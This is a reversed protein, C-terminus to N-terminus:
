NILNLFKNKIAETIVDVEKIKMNYIIVSYSTVGVIIAIFLSMSQSLTNSLYNFSLKAFGGMVLSAFLIHAYNKLILCLRFAGIKVRLKVFLLLCVVGGSISSALALGGIGIYKSLIINLVINILIGIIGNIMPTKSDGLSYFVRLLIERLGFAIMGLSYYLLSISTMNIATTDFAGRGFLFVVIQRSFLMAGISSPIVLLGIINISEIVLKKLDKKNGQVAFKSITPYLVAIISTIFLGQILGDLKQAYNLASIGGVAINSAITRDVLKNIQNLSSGLIIPASIQMTQLITPERLNLILSYRFGKRKVFIILLLVQCLIALLTGIPLIYVNTMISLVIALITITNLPFGILAPIYYNGKIQLYSVFINLLTTFYIGILTIRTFNIALVLTEGKFGSAFIKVIVDTYLLGLVVIITSSIMLLNILNCTYDIASKENIKNEVKTFLPIYGTAVGVSIFGFIVTPVTLSIIYADSVNSAGYFYSLVVERAFGFIKSLLTIIIIIAATRKM